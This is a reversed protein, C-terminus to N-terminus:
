GAPRRHQHVALATGLIVGAVALMPAPSTWETRGSHWRAALLYGAGVFAAGWAVAGVTNIVVFRRYSATHRSPQGVVSRFSARLCRNVRGPPQWRSLRAWLRAGYRRRLLYGAQDSVILWGIGGLLAPWVGLHQEFGLV